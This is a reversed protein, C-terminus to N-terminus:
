LPWFPTFNWGYTKMVYPVVSHMRHHITSWPMSMKNGVPNECDANLCEIDVNDGYRLKEIDAAKCQLNIGTHQIMLHMQDATIDDGCENYAGTSTSTSSLMPLPIQVAGHCKKFKKTSGCPCPENVGLKSPSEAYTLKSKKHSSGPADFMEVSHSPIYLISYLTSLRRTCHQDASENM